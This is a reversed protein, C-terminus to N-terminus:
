YCGDSSCYSSGSDGCVDSDDDPDPDERHMPRIDRKLAGLNLGATGQLMRLVDELPHQKQNDRGEGEESLGEEQDMWGQINDSKLREEQMSRLIDQNDEPMSPVSEKGRDSFTRFEPM